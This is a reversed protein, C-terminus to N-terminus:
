YVCPQAYRKLKQKDLIELKKRTFDGIIGEDRLNKLIKGLTSRHIGITAAFESQSIEPCCINGDHKDGLKDLYFCVVKEPSCENDDALRAFLVKTKQMLSFVLNSMLEPHLKIFSEDALLSGPFNYIISEEMAVLRYSNGFEFPLLTCERFICGPKICFTIRQKGSFNLCELYVCGASLFSFTEASPKEWAFFKPIIQKNALHLVDRWPNNLNELYFDDKAQTCQLM